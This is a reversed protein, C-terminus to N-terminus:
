ESGSQASPLSAQNAAKVKFWYTIVMVTLAGLLQPVEGPPEGRFVPVLWVGGCTLLLIVTAVGQMVISKGFLVLFEQRFNYKRKTM